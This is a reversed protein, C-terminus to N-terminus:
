PSEDGGQDDNRGNGRNDGNGRPTGQSPNLPVSRLRQGTAHYIANAIAPPPTLTTIEGAGWAPQDPHNILTIDIPPIDQFRLIPYSRWDVSTIKSNDFNVQELIARSASQIVNGQIQNKLGDPNIILGADHAVAIRNLTIRGSSPDVSVDAATAVYAETNEYRAFAIGLGRGSNNPATHPQWGIQNAAAQLVAIARPDNLHNLRFQLPDTGAAYALEDMFSENAFTNAMAGLSRLASVRIPSDSLWHVTVRNNEFTYNTPANRDGGGFGNEAAPPPPSILQGPLLNAAFGGPRTSHTPTWVQYDWAAVKGSGDVAGRIDVVMGPGHPEWVHEDQRMWQVRVPKGVAQSLLAAEGAADDFGNHGYCGSGEMHVVHVSDAAMGILQAVAGRLPYVGQTSSYITAKDSQVDAVACSPGISAHNQYPHTYTSHLVNQADSLTSEVDGTNVPQKDSTQQQQIWDALSAQDPLDSPTTWTVALTRAAQIAGWESQAVVGVFSGNQVVKVLDPIDAISSQDVSVVTAGIASPHVTRGHLMGPLKLDQVYAAQGFIKAPLDLRPISQGVITYQSPDKLPTQDSIQRKFVQGGILDGYAVKQSSDSTLSITGNNIALSDQSVGLRASAMELLAQRAEAAAKRVNVGGVQITKSGATYGEDPARATDGSVMTVNEFPIYLEDAAIQSLATRTGTGLEVRGSFITVKGDQGVSLWSDVQNADISAKPPNSPASVPSPVPQQEAVETPQATAPTQPTPQAQSPDSQAQALQMLSFSVVLAGGGGLFARRSVPSM